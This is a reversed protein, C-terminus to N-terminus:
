TLRLRGSSGVEGGVSLGSLLSSKWGLEFM